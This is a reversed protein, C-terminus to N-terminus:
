GPSPLTRLPSATDAEVAKGGDGERFPRPTDRRLLEREKLLPSPLPKLLSVQAACLLLLVSLFHKM